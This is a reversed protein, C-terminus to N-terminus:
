AGVRNHFEAHRIAYDEEMPTGPRSVAVVAGCLQCVAGLKDTMAEAEVWDPFCHWPYVVQGEHPIRAFPM